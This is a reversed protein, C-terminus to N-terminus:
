RGRFHPTRKELRAKMGEQADESRMAAQVLADVDDHKIQDRFELQRVTLAKMAKLSLPANAALREIIKSAEEELQGPPVCRAILGLAHLKTAPLPDGLLLMERTTVPGLVEILKKALFWNPALGVQALSMGFRAADSAVVMDCHLALENGGAIADGQVVAVVPLPCLEIARLMTEIGSAQGSGVSGRREAMDLGACFVSGKGRIVVVRDEDAIPARLAEIMADLLERDLANRKEPRNLWLTRVAGSREVVVKSM